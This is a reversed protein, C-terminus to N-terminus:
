NLKKLYEKKLKKVLKERKLFLNKQKRPKRKALAYSTMIPIAITSDTYCVVTDPLRDPDIKGWTVAESPTAGSLGGTDPRADTIQVFYDHGCEDLGLIEQIQPETQLAFNKPSGGGFIVVASKGGKIKADYVIASTENVDLETDFETKYGALKMAAVNMGITSDGPSSTYVPVNNEYCAGILSRHELGIQKERARVYKGLLYHLEASGMKKQFEPAELVKRLFSDSEFLVEQDFVIDYIRIIKESRLQLDDVFPTTQFLEFGLSRHIDHYLNAGTSIIWDIFGAEVLPVFASYGLGAPTLAGSLTVGVTVDDELIKDSFLQCAERLRAANYSLFYKDVLETIKVDGPIQSPNLKKFNSFKSM